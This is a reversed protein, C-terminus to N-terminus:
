SKQRKQFPPPAPRHELKHNSCYEMVRDPEAQGVGGFGLHNSTGKLQVKAGNLLFGQRADFVASRVGIQVSVVDLTTGRGGVTASEILTLKATYLPPAM